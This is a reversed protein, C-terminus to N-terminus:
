NKMKQRLVVISTFPALQIPTLVPLGNITLYHERSVDISENSKNRNILLFPEYENLISDKITIVKNSHDGTIKQWDYFSLNLVSNDPYQKTKKTFPNSKASHVYQNNRLLAFDTKDGIWNIWEMLNQGEFIGVVTNEEVVNDYMGGVKAWEPFVIGSTCNYITNGIYTNRFSADNNVIGASSHGSSTNDEVLMDHSNNDIYIGNFHIENAPTAIVNGVSNTVINKRFISHHTIGPMTAFCYLASGDNLTLGCANIVNNEVLNYSGDVRIGNYGCSDVINYRVVCHNSYKPKLFLKSEINTISIGTAGNVGTFGQAPLLGIRRVKNNEILMKEAELVAIGKGLIDTFTSNTIACNVSSSDISIGFVHNNSFGCQDVIINSVNTSASIGADFFHRFQLGTIVVNSVEKAITIGTSQVTGEVKLKGINESATRKLLVKNNSNVWEGATDLFLPLGALYFGYGKVIEYITKAGNESRLMMGRDDTYLPHKEISLWGGSTSKVRRMEYTWDITRIHITAGTFDTQGNDLAKSYVTNKHAGSDIKLFGANPYRALTQRKDNIFLETIPQQVGAAFVGTKENTWNSLLVSGSIIPDAGKGYATFVIPQGKKGSRTLVFSGRFVSGREFFVTDGPLLKFSSITQISKLPSTVRKGNARDSGNESFYYNTAQAQIFIVWCLLSAVSKMM